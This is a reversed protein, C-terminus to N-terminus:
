ALCWAASSPECAAQSDGLIAFRRLSMIAASDLPTLNVADYHRSSAKGCSILRTATVNRTAFLHISAEDRAICRTFMNQVGCFVLGFMESEWQCVAWGSLLHLTFHRRFNFCIWLLQRPRQHHHDRHCEFGFGGYETSCRIYSKDPRVDVVDVSTDVSKRYWALAM